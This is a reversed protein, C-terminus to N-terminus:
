NFYRETYYKIMDHNLKMLHLEIFIQRRLHRNYLYIINPLFRKYTMISTDNAVDIELYRLIFHSNVSNFLVDWCSLYELFPLQNLLSMTVVMRINLYVLNTLMKLSDYDSMNFINTHFFKLCPFKHIINCHTDNVILLAECNNSSHIYTPDIVSKICTFSMINTMIIPSNVYCNYLVLHRVSPIDWPRRIIGFLKLKRLNSFRRKHIIFEANIHLEHININSFSLPIWNCRRMIRFPMYYFFSFTFKSVHRLRIIDFERLFEIINSYIDNIFLTM